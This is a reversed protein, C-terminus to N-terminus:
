VNTCCKLNGSKLQMVDHERPGAAVAAHAEQLLHERGDGLLDLQLFILLPEARTDFPSSRPWFIGSDPDHCGTTSQKAAIKVGACIKQRRNPRKDFNKSRKTLRQVERQM